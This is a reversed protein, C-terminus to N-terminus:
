QQAEAAIETALVDRRLSGGKRSSWWLVIPAAVFISSYTGVFLGVLIVISFDFLTSGGFVSLLMVTIITTTSTIITRSLTANIAENMIDKVEGGRILLTERIRDFIVITDNVSYGAITLIAGVHIMSLERGFLVVIGVSIIVDHLIAAIAGVAFSFEFRISVYIMIGLLGIGLAILSEKLFQTGILASVVETSAQIDFASRMDDDPDLSAIAPFAELLTSAIAEYDAIDCNVTLVGDDVTVAVGAAPDLADIRERVADASPAEDGLNYTLTRAGLLPFTERLKQSIAASDETDCRISLLTGTTITFEEQPFPARTTDVEALAAEVEEFPIEEEGLQFQLLTGGTFDIGLADERQFGFGALCVVLLTTSAIAARKAQGLFDYKASRILNLFSLQRLVGTDLGWRYLVRTVLISSFMSALLGITLTIAFGKISSSGLWFLIMATILSTINADFIASFAKEYASTIANRISKGSDIEERLREYILVNADVAIGITLILGAIGPLTFVFGFMAMIGFLITMNVSLGVLAIIGAIRYYVLIFLFTIALGSVGAWIGQRVVAAGLTASVSREDEVVLGSELPNMLARALNQPEGPDRLGSIMFNRGLPTSQVVPASIVVGDLVIAIRDQGERMSQTLAIMRDTGERNLTIDVADSRSPSPNARGIHNGGVAVRRNLLIDSTRENGDEDTTTYEYARYGPVIEDGEEVRTALTRGSEDREESRPSVERLELRATTELIIRVREAEEPEVGPMQVIIMDEGQRAILPQATGLDDLRSRIVTIAQGVQEPTVPTLRGQPDEQPQVRLMFSSGGVLDIGGQIRDKLPTLGLICLTVIGLPLITGVNRKRRELDTAFYWFFLVLLIMGIVFLTLEDEFLDIITPM